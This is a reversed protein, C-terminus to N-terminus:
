AARRIDILAPPVYGCPGLIYGVPQCDVTVWAEFPPDDGTAELDVDSPDCDFDDAVTSRIWRYGISHDYGDFWREALKRGDMHYIAICESTPAQAPISVASGALAITQAM